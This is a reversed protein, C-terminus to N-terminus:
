SRRKSAREGERQLSRRSSGDDKGIAALDRPVSVHSNSSLSTSCCLYSTRMQQAAVTLEVISEELPIRWTHQSKVQSRDNYTRAQAESIDM